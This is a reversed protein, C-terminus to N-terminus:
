VEEDTSLAQAAHEVPLQGVRPVRGLVDAPQTRRGPAEATGALHAAETSDRVEEGGVLRGATRRDGELSDVPPLNVGGHLPCRDARQLRRRVETSRRAGDLESRDPAADTLALPVEECEEPDSGGDVGGVRQRRDSRYRGESARRGRLQRFGDALVHLAAHLAVLARGPELRPDRSIRKADDLALQLETGGNRGRM